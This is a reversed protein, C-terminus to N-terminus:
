ETDGEGVKLRCRVGVAVALWVSVRRAVGVLLWAEKRFPSFVGGGGPSPPLSPPDPALGVGPPTRGSARTHKKQRLTGFNKPPPVRLCGLKQPHDLAPSPPYPPGGPTKM